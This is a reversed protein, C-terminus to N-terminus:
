RSSLWNRWDTVELWSPVGVFIAMCSKREHLYALGLAAQHLFKWPTFEIINHRCAALHDDISGNSVFESVFFYHGVDCAGDLKIVNPHRLHRWVTAEETLSAM